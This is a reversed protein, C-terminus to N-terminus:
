AQLVLLATDSHKAARKRSLIIAASRYVSRTREMLVIPPATFDMGESFEHYRTTQKLKVRSQGVKRRSATTVM